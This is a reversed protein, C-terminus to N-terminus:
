QRPFPAVGREGVAVLVPETIMAAEAAMAGPSMVTMASPPIVDTAWFPLDGNRGPYGVLDALVIHEPVDDYHFSRATAPLGREDPMMEPMTSTHLARTMTGVDTGRTFYMPPTRPTGPPLWSVAHIASWGLVGIADFTHERGQQLILLAAGMLQGLGVV